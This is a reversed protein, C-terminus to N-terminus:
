SDQKFFVGARAKQDKITEIKSGDTFAYIYDKNLYFNNNNICHNSTTNDIFPKEKREYLFKQKIKMNKNTIDM